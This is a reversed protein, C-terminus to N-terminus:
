VRERCSARGIQVVKQTLGHAPEFSGFRNAGLAVVVRDQTPIGASSDNLSILEDRTLFFFWDLKWEFLQLRKATSFTHLRPILVAIKWHFDAVIFKSPELM